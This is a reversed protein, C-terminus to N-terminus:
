ASSNAIYAVIRSSEYKIHENEEITTLETIPDLGGADIFAQIQEEVFM